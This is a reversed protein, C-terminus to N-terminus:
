MLEKTQGEQEVIVRDKLIEKVVVGKIKEGEKLFFTRGEKVERIMAEPQTGWAIGVLKFNEVGGLDAAPSPKKPEPEGTTPQFLSRSTIPTLFAEVPLPNLNPREQVPLTEAVRGHLQGIDSKFFFINTVSLFIVLVCILALPGNLRAPVSVMDRKSRPSSKGRQLASRLKQRFGGFWRRKTPIPLEGGDQIMQFLREEASLKEQMTM